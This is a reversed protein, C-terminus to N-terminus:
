PYIGFSCTDFKLLLCAISVSLWRHHTPTLPSRLLRWFVCLVVNFRSVKEVHRLVHNQQFIDSAGAVAARSVIHQPLFFSFLSIKGDNTTMERPDRRQRRRRRSVCSSMPPSPPVLNSLSSAVWDVIKWKYILVDNKLKTPQTPLSFRSNGAVVTSCPHSGSGAFVKWRKFRYSSIECTLLLLLFNEVYILTKFHIERWKIKTRARRRTETSVGGHPHFRKRRLLLLVVVYSSSEDLFGKEKDRCSNYQWLLM